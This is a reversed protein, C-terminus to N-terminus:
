TRPCAPPRWRSPRPRAGHRHVLARDLLRGARAPPATPPTTSRTSSSGAAAGELPGTSRPAPRWAVSCTGASAASRPAVAAGWGLARDHLRREFALEPGHRDRLRGDGRGRPGHGHRARPRPEPHRARRRLRRRHLARRLRRGARGRRMLDAWADRTTPAHAPALRPEARRSVLGAPPEHLRARAERRVRRAGRLQGPRGDLEAFAENEGRAPRTSPPGRRARDHAAQDRRLSSIPKRPSCRRRARMTTPCCSTPSASRSARPGM